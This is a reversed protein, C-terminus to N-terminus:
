EGAELLVREVLAAAADVGVGLEFERRRLAHKQSCTDADFEAAAAGATWTPDRRAGSSAGRPAASRRRRRYRASPKTLLFASARLPHLPLAVLSNAELRQETRGADDSSGVETAPGGAVGGGRAAAPEDSACADRGADSARLAVATPSLPWRARGPESLAARPRIRTPSPVRAGASRDSARVRPTAGIGCRMRAAAAARATEPFGDAGGVAVEETAVKICVRHQLLETGGARAVHDLHRPDGEGTRTAM